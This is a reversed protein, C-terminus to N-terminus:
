ISAKALIKEGEVELNKATERLDEVFDEIHEKRVHPMVVIRIHSPFLSVAWGRLRLEHAIKRIDYVKSKLGVVNMTPKTVIDLGNICKIKEVLKWTLHMCRGVIRKYGEVGLHRLLAWVAIVSAGSRTGALTAQETEGGALYSIKWAVAKRIEKNRFLIGGAPVPALGMKHPDVTISCVGPLAFDFDPVNYSLERLFPLVFGGFAADVHLYLNNKISIESLEEIQDVVGLGTTGAVGVIAITKQNLAKEVDDVDVQFSNNLGVRVIKLGLMDAAKDFSCHASVPIIVEGHEKKSLKKAAWLALTNAETGGTVIHGSAEPNSLLAGLMQVTERELEAVGPCLGSDGLNKELYRFYVRRAIPHPETCMSGVIRGSKFTFDKKLRSELQKLVTKQPLGRTQLKM